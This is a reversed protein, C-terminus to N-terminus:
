SVSPSGPGSKALFRGLDNRDKTATEAWYATGAAAVVALAAAFQCLPHTLMTKM